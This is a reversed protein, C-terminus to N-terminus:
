ALELLVPCHDSGTVDALIEARRVRPELDRGVFFYDLRWGVNRARAGGRFSWWSYAEARDPHLLRFTDRFGGAAGELFGDVWACEEPLFGSNGRNAAPRALDIERHATNLDGCIVVQQGRAQCSEVLRQFANYFDMKYALREPGSTGNPFYVNLLVLDALRSVMVRGETDWAALSPDLTALGERTAHEAGRVLTATGSYGARQTTSWVGTYGLGALTEQAAPPIQSPFIRTEQLCLVDPRERALWELFGKGLVSRLGNVNWSVLRM